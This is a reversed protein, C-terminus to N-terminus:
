KTTRRNVQTVIAEFLKPHHIAFDALIKRDIQIQAKKLDDIFRSYTTGQARLAANIKLIWLGRAARKKTRRDRYAYKGAKAAATKALKIKSKRGWKFGKTKKLLNKRRKAHM